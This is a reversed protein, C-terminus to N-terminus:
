FQLVSVSKQIMAVSVSAMGVLAMGASFGVALVTAHLRWQQRGFKNWFYYRALLAGIIETVVLHPLIGLSRVFGFVFLIPLGLFSMFVFLVLSIVFGSAIVAPKVAEYFIPIDESTQLFPGDFEPTQDIEFYYRVQEGKSGHIPFVPLPPTPTHAGVGDDMGQLQPSGTSEWRDEPEIRAPKTLPPGRKMYDTYFFGVRSWPGDEGTKIDEAEADRTTRVRWYWWSGDTLNAPRWSVRDPSVQMEGKLTSTFWVCDQLARLPWYVQAYPYTESPIPALSWIYSWYLFSAALVLPVMFVEAKLISTFRTGTLEIERFKQAQSGHTALPFPVFWIEMGRFGSLFITAERIYPISVTQGVMGILRANVFSILPTYVFAFLFFFVILTNTVLNPFLYKALLITYLGSAAFLIICLGIRFDGRGLPPKFTRQTFGRGGLPSRGKFVQYFGIAAIGLTTGLGFSMWFDIYGLFQTQITDMGVFWHPLMGYSHLIPNAVTYVVVGFFTGVIGWFPALLGVFIPGLHCTFGLPTAPLFYGTYPTFDVFPIPFIQLPEEMFVGTIAPVAVYFLGWVIGIVAGVSFMRWRWGQNGQSQEALAMAGQANIPAFPFPLREYDSTLRFLIYGGTFWSIKGMITGIVLLVIPAIWDSHLFTRDILANSDPQPAVWAPILGSIGFQKAAPSQVFYQNWLLGEFAGTEAGILATTVYFLLYIEQKKLTTFSRKSLEIFLIITVWEAAAGFGGGIMLNLYINGPLMVISVFIAGIITKVNFAEEYHGPPELLARYEEIEEFRASKDRNFVAM